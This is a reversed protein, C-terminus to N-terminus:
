APISSSQYKWFGGTYVFRFEATTQEGDTTFQQDPFKAEPLLMDGTDSGNRFELVIGATAPLTVAFVMMDGARRRARMLVITSIRPSGSVTLDIWQNPRSSAVHLDGASLALEEYANPLERVSGPCCSM